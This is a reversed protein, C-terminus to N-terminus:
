AFSIVNVSLVNLDTRCSSYHLCVCYVKVICQLYSRYVVQGNVSTSRTVITSRKVNCRM